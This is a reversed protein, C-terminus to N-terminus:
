CIENEKDKWIKEGRKNEEELGIRAVNKFIEVSDEDVTMRQIMEKLEETSYDRIMLEIKSM